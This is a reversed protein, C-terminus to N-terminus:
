TMKELHEPYRAGQVKIESAAREIRDLDDPTLDVAAAGLNEDLRELKRTGPIPVIWPKQALLWALAIQAPTANKQRAIDGLLDVMAQNAKRAETSRPFDGSGAQVQTTQTAPSQDQSAIPQTAALDDSASAGNALIGGIVLIALLRPVKVMSKQHRSPKTRTDDCGSYVRDICRQAKRIWSFNLPRPLERGM